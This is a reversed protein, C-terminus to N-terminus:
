CSTVSNVIVVAWNYHKPIDQNYCRSVLPIIPLINTVHAIVHSPSVNHNLQLRRVQFYVVGTLHSM